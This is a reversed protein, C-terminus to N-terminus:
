YRAFDILCGTAAGAPGGLMRWVKRTFRPKEPNIGTACLVVDLAGPGKTYHPQYGKSPDKCLMQAQGQLTCGPPAAEAVAATGLTLGAALLVAAGITRIRGM